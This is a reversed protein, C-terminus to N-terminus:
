SMGMDEKTQWDYNGDRLRSAPGPNGVEAHEMVIGAALQLQVAAHLKSYYVLTYCVTTYYLATDDNRDATCMGIGCWRGAAVDTM